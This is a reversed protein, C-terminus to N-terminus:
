SQIFYGIENTTPDIGKRILNILNMMEYKYIREVIEKYTIDKDINYKIM